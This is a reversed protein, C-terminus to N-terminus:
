VKCQEDAADSTYLLCVGGRGPAVFAVVEFDELIEDSDVEQAGAASVQVVFVM